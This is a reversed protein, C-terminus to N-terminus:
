NGRLKFLVLKIQPVPPNLLRNTELDELEEVQLNKVGNQASLPSFGASLYYNAVNVIM